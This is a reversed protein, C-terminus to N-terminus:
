PLPYYMTRKIEWSSLPNFVRQGSIGLGKLIEIGYVLNNKIYSGTSVLTMDYLGGKFLFLVSCYNKKNEGKSQAILVVIKEDNNNLLDMSKLVKLSKINNKYYSVYNAKYDDIIKDEHKTVVMYNDTNFEGLENPILVELYHDSDKNCLWKEPLTLNIDKVKFNNWTIKEINDNSWYSWEGSRVSKNFLGKSIAEGNNKQISWEGNEFKSLKKFGMKLDIIMVEDNDVYLLDYYNQGCSYFLFPIILM